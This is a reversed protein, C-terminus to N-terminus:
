HGAHGVFRMSPGGQSAVTGTLRRGGVQGTERLRHTRAVREFHAAAEVGTM